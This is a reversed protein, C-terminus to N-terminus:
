SHNSRGALQTLGREDMLKLYYRVAREGLEFGYDKLHHAIVRAGLLEQSDSLIRMVALVKREVSQAEFAV